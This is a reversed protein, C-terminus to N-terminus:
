ACSTTSRLERGSWRRLQGAAGGKERGRRCRHRSAHDPRRCQRRHHHDVSTRAITPGCRRACTPVLAMGQLLARSTDTEAFEPRALLAKIEACCTDVSLRDTNLVLDFLVPQDWDVGFQEHMRAPTPRTAASSRPRPSAATTPTSDRDDAVARAQEFPRMIRICPVHPVAACCSRRAGAACCWTAARRPRSCRRPPTCRANSQRDAAAARAHGAKGDRLRNILSSSVHM